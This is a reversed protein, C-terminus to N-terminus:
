GEPAGARVEQLVQAFVEVPQAGSCGIQRDFLFFPVTRIGLQAALAQSEDVDAALRDTKLFARVAAAELGAAKATDVLAELDNLDAGQTFYAEYLGQVMPWTRGQEEAYLILRHADRTNPARRVRDFRFDLGEKQGESAVHRFMAQARGWGGFKQDAFARWDLGEPPLEPQLQFPHWHYALDLDPAEARLRDLAAELRQEGIYCWPCVVDAFLDIRLPSAM